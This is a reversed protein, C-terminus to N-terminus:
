KPSEDVIIPGLPMQIPGVCFLAAATASESASGGLLAFNANHRSQVIRILWRTDSGDRCASSHSATQRPSEILRNSGKACPVCNMPIRWRHRLPLLFKSKSCQPEEPHQQDKGGRRPEREHFTEGARLPASEDQKVPPGYAPNYPCRKGIGSRLPGRLRWWGGASGLQSSRPPQGQSTEPEKSRLQRCARRRLHADPM